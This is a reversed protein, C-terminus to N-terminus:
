RQGPTGLNAGPTQVPFQLLYEGHAINSGTVASQEVLSYALYVFKGDTTKTLRITERMRTLKDEKELSWETGTQAGYISTAPTSYEKPTLEGNNSIWVNREADYNLASITLPIQQKTKADVTVSLVRWLAGNESDLKQLGVAVETVPRIEIKKMEAIYQDYDAKNPWIEADYDPLQNLTFSSELETRKEPSLKQIATLTKQLQERFSDPSPHVPRVQAGRQLSGNTPLMGEVAGAKDDAQAVFAPFAFLALIFSLAKMRM